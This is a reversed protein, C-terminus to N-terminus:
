VDDVSGTWDVESLQTVRIPFPARLRRALNYECRLLFFSKGLGSDALLLLRQTKSWKGIQLNRVARRSLPRLRSSVPAAEVSEPANMAGPEVERSVSPLVYRHASARLEERASMALRERASQTMRQWRSLKDYADALSTTPVPKPQTGRHTQLEPQDAHMLVEFIKYRRFDALLKTTVGGVTTLKDDDSADDFAATIAVGRELYERKLLARLACGWAAGASPGVLTGGVPIPLGNVLYDVDRLDISWRVDFALPRGGRVVNRARDMSRRFDDALRLYGSSLVDPYLVGSGHPIRELRLRGVVGQDDVPPAGLDAYRYVFLVWTEVAHQESRVDGWMCAITDRVALLGPTAGGTHRAVEGLMESWRKSDPISLKLQREVLPQWVEDTPLSWYANYAQTAAVLDKLLESEQKQLSALVQCRAALLPQATQTKAQFDSDTVLELGRQFEDPFMRAARAFLLLPCADGQFGSRWQEYARTSPFSEENVAEVCRHFRPVADKTLRELRAKRRAARKM